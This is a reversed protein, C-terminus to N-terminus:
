PPLTVFQDPFLFAEGLLLTFYQLQQGFSLHHFFNTCGSCPAGSPQM